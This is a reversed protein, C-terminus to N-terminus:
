DGVQPEITGFATAVEDRWNEIETTTEQLDDIEDELSEVAVVRRELSAVSDDLSSLTELDATIEAIRDDLREQEATLAAYDSELTTLQDDLAALDERVDALVAEAGGEADLFAELADVYAELDSLRSQCHEVRAEVSTTGGALATRLRDVQVDPVDGRELEAALREVLSPSDTTPEPSTRETDDGGDAERM